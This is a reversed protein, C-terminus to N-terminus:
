SKNENVKKYEESAKKLMENWVREDHAECEAKTLVVYSPAKINNPQPSALRPCVKDSLTKFIAKVFSIKTDQAYFRYALRAQCAKTFPSCIIKIM